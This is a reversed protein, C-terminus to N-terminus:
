KKGRFMLYVYCLACVLCASALIVTLAGGDRADVDAAGDTKDTGLTDSPIFVDYLFSGTVSPAKTVASSQPTQTETDPAQTETDVYPPPDTKGEDSYPTLGAFIDTDTGYGVTSHYLGFRLPSHEEIDSARDIKKEEDGFIWRYFKSDLQSAHCLFAERSVEFPSKGGLKDSPEDWNFRVEAEGWLHFYAKPVEYAGYSSASEPYVSPDASVKLMRAVSDALLIHQGHKYEGEFDHTFVVLPRTRRFLEVINRDVEDATHGDDTLNRRAWEIDTSYRDTIGCVVPYNRVGARWLGDLREHRREHKDYHETLYAVTVIRGQSTYYPLIGAFFLHEDDSHASVLLIDTREPTSEWRQVWDPCAGQGFVYIESVRAGSDFNLTLDHCEEGLLGTIDAYQHIFEEKKEIRCGSGDTISWTEVAEDFLIYIGGIASQSSLTLTAGARGECYYRFAGDTMPWSRDFGRATIRTEKTIEPAPQLAQVNQEPIVDYTLQEDASVCVFCFPSSILVCALFACLIRM